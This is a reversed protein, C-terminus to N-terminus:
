EGGTRAPVAAATYPHRWSREEDGPCDRCQDPDHRARDHGCRCPPAVAPATATLYGNHAPDRGAAVHRLLEASDQPSYVDPAAGHWYEILGAAETLAAARVQGLLRAAESADLYERGTLLRLVLADPTTRDTPM